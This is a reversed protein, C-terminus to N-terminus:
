LSSGARRRPVVCSLRRGGGWGRQGSALWGVGWWLSARWFGSGGGVKYVCPEGGEVRRCYLPSGPAITVADVAGPALISAACTPAGFLPDACTWRDEAQFGPLPSVYLDPDGGLPTLTFTFGGTSAAGPTFTFWAHDGSVLSGRQPQGPVLLTPTGGGPATAVLSFEAPEAYATVGIYLTAPLPQPVAQGDIRIVDEEGANTSMWVDDGIAGSGPRHDTFSAFLDADGAFSTLTLLAGPPADPLLPFAFFAFEDTQLTAHYPVSARLTLTERAARLSADIQYGTSTYAYVTIYYSCPTAGCGASDQPIVLQDSGFADSEWTTRGPAPWDTKRQLEAPTLAPGSSVFLDPDGSSTTVSLRIVVDAAGDSPSFAYHAQAGGGLYGDLPQGATLASISGASAASTDVETVILVYLASHGPPASVGLYVLSPCEPTCLSGAAIVLSEESYGEHASAMTSNGAAYSAADPRPNVASVFLDVDGSMPTLLVHLELHADYRLTYFSPQGPGAFGLDSEGLQLVGSSNAVPWAFGPDGPHQATALGLLALLELGFSRSGM